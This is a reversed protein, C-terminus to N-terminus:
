KQIIKRATEGLISVVEEESFTIGSKKVVDPPQTFAQVWTAEGGRFLRLAPWDSGFMVRDAGITDLITRLPRYFAEVPHLMKPQWGALDLYVNPRVSAINLAEPWWGFGAHAMILKLGPFDNAVEDMYVPYCFKSYLPMTEPGTHVLVPIGKKEALAYLKCCNSDNPYFGAAPILKLGCMHWENIARDLFKVADPRRPDLGAFPILRTPNRAAIECYAQNVEIYSLSAEGVGSALGLDIVSIWSQTVGARDMDELLKEGTEDWFEPMRKEVADRQRGSMSSFVSVWAKWYGDGIFKPSFLHTHCDIIM